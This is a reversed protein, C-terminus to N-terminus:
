RWWLWSWLSTHNRRGLGGGQHTHKKGREMGGKGRDRGRGRNSMNADRAWQHGDEASLGKSAERSQPAQSSRRERDQGPPHSDSKKQPEPTRVPTLRGTAQKTNSKTKKTNAPGKQPKSRKLSRGGDNQKRNNEPSMRRARDPHVFDTTDQVTERGEPNKREGGHDEIRGQLNQGSGIFPDTDQVNNNRTSQREQQKRFNNLRTAYPM